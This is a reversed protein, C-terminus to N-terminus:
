PLTIVKLYKIKSCLPCSIHHCCGIYITNKNCFLIVIYIYPTTTVNKKVYGHKAILFDERRIDCNLLSFISDPYNSESENDESQSYYLDSTREILQFSTNLGDKPTNCVDSDMSTDSKSDDMLFSKLYVLNCLNHTM